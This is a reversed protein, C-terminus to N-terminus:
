LGERLVNKAPALYLLFLLLNVTRLVIFFPANFVLIAMVPFHFFFVVDEDVQKLVLLGESRVLAAGDPFGDILLVTEEVLDIILQLMTNALSKEIGARVLAALSGEEKVQHAPKMGRDVCVDGFAELIWLCQLEGVIAGIKIVRHSFVWRANTVKMEDERRDHFCDSHYFLREHLIIVCSPKAHNIIELGLSEDDIQQLM